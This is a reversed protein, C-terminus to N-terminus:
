HVSEDRVFNPASFRERERERKRERAKGKIRERGNEVKIKILEVKKKRKSQYDRIRRWNCGEREKERMIEGKENERM